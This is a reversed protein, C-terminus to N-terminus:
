STINQKLAYCKKEFPLLGPLGHDRGRQLDLSALDLSGNHSLVSLKRTLEENLLQDQVQLKAATALTGRLWPDLGGQFVFSHPANTFGLFYNM